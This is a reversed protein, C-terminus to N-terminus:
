VGNMYLGLGFLTNMVLCRYEIQIITGRKIWGVMNWVSAAFQYAMNFFIFSHHPHYKNIDRWCGMGYTYTAKIQTEGPHPTAKGSYGSPM